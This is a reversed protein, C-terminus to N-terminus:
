VWEFCTVSISFKLTQNLREVQGQMWPCRTRGRVHRFGFKEQLESVHSNVFERGNDTHIIFPVDIRYIIKEIYHAITEGRKDLLKYTWCYKSFSDVAVFLWKYGMNRNEYARLDVLDIIIRERPCYANIPIIPPRTIMNRRVSCQPCSAIAALIEDRTVGYISSDFLSKLRNRGLHGSEHHILKIADLKEDDEEVSFFKLRLTSTKYFMICGTRMDLRFNSARRRFIRKNLNQDTLYSGSILFKKIQNTEIITLKIFSM